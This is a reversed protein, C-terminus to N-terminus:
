ISHHALIMLRVFSTFEIGPLTPVFRFSSLFSSLFLYCVKSKKQPAERQQEYLNQLKESRGSPIGLGLRFHAVRVEVNISVDLIIRARPFSHGDVASEVHEDRDCQGKAKRM